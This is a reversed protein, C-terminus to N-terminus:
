PYENESNKLELLELANVSLRHEPPGKPVGNAAKCVLPRYMSRRGRGAAPSRVGTLFQSLTVVFTQPRQPDSNM